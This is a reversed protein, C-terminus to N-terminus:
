RAPEALGRLARDAVDTDVDKVSLALGDRSVFVVTSTGAPGGLTSLLYDLAVGVAVIVLGMFLLSPSAARVGDVFTHVGVLSGVALSLLGAYFAARPYRVERVARAIGGRAMVVDRERVTRGLISTHWHIRVGSASLTVDAPRRYALAVRGALRLLAGVLLLGTVALLVTLAPHRPSRALEGHLEAPGGEEGRALLSSLAPDTLLAALRVCEGAATPSSSSRLAVAAALAEARGVSQADGSDLKRLLAGFTHWFSDARDGLARDLLLTADFPTFAALWVVRRVPADEDEDPVPREEALAHAWLAALLAREEAKAPGRELVTWVNGFDTAAAEATLAPKEGEEAPEGPPKWALARAHYARHAAGRVLSVLDAFRPHRPLADFARAEITESM